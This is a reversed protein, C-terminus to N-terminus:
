ARSLACSVAGTLILSAAWAAEHNLWIRRILGAGTWRYVTWAMFGAVVDV